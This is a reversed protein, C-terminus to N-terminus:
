LDWHNRWLKWSEILKELRMRECHMTRREVLENKWCGKLRPLQYSFDKEM